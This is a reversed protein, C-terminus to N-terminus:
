EACRGSYTYTRYRVRLPEDLPVLAAVEDLLANRDGEPLSAVFSISAVRGVFEAHSTEHVWPTCREALPGQLLPSADVPARWAGHRFQPAFGTATEVRASVRALWGSADDWINWLLGLGGGPRAVRHIEALARGPEFWHFAQAVLVADVAADPLPIAEATGALAPVGPLAAELLARMAPLPEVAVVDLGAAALLRTLKGTGAALDLVRQPCGLAGLLGAVADPPYGPRGREYAGAMLTFGTAAAPHLGPPVPDPPAAM